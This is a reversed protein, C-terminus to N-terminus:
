YTANAHSEFETLPYVFFIRILSFFLFFYDSLTHTQSSILFAVLFKAKHEFHIKHANFCLEFNDVLLLFWFLTFLLLLLFLRVSVVVSPNLANQILLLVFAIGFIYM